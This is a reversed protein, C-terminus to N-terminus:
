SNHTSTRKYEYEIYIRITLNSSSNKYNKFVTTLSSNIELPQNFKIIEKTIQKVKKNATVTYDRLLFDNGNVLLTINGCEYPNPQNYVQKDYIFIEEKRSYLFKLIEEAILESFQFSSLTKGKEYIDIVNFLYDPLLDGLAFELRQTLLSQQANDLIPFILIDKLKSIIEPLIDSEFFAKSEAETDRTQMFSYFLNENVYRVNDIILYQPFSLNSTIDETQINGKATANVYVGSILKCDAPLLDEMKIHENNDTEYKLVFYKKM